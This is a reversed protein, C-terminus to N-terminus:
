HGPETTPMLLLDGKEKVIRRYWEPSYPPQSLEGKTTKVNGDLYKWILFEGLKKWRATVKDGETCSYQTLFDRAQTPSQDYLFKAHTEVDAQQALFQGELERQVKQVDVIMDSWRSYTYNAVFNFENWSGTGEKFTHPVDKVGCYVPVYVTCFTDDVGFWLCGGIPDPLFARSQAVFSFGTQQTSIAREHLYQKGDVKWEMPRWRYPLKFPGAGVDQSMDLETGEYHDRMLQMVDRVDLKHDPKVFLPLPKDLVTGKITEVPLDLSPAARRFVSWVRAECFRLGSFDAPAYVDAFSFEADTGKFWKNDRAFTIVDKSYLVNKADHQDFTRIRSQNAHASITGDPLKVAVWVAGVKGKGKGIVEFIWAENPDAV